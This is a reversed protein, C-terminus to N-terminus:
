IRNGAMTDGCGSRVEIGHLVADTPLSQAYNLLNTIVINGGDGQKPKQEIAPKVAQMTEFFNTDM